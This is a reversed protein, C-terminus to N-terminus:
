LSPSRGARRMTGAAFEPGRHHGCCLSPCMETEIPANRARLFPCRSLCKDKERPDSLEFGGSTRWNSPHPPRRPLHCWGEDSPELQPTASIGVSSKPLTRPMSADATCCSSSLALPSEYEAPCRQGRYATLAPKWYESGADTPTHSIASM